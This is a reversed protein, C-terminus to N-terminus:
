GGVLWDQIELINIVQVIPRGLLFTTNGGDMKLPSSNTEPLTGLSIPSCFIVEELTSKGSYGLSSTRRSFSRCTQPHRTQHPPPTQHNFMPIWASFRWAIYPHKRFHHYGVVM